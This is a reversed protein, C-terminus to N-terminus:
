IDVTLGSVSCQTYMLCGQLYVTVKVSKANSSKFSDQFKVWRSSMLIIDRGFVYIWHEFSTVSYTPLVCRSM